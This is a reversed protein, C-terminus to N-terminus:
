PDLVANNGGKAMGPREKTTMEVKPARSTQHAQIAVVGSSRDKGNRPTAADTTLRHSFVVRGQGAMERVHRVSIRRPTAAKPVPMQAPAMATCTVMARVMKCPRVSTTLATTTVGSSRIPQAVIVMANRNINRPMMRQVAIAMASRSAKLNAHIKPAAKTTAVAITRVRRISQDAIRMVSRSAVRAIAMARVKWRRAANRSATPKRVRRVVRAVNAKRRKAASLSEVSQRLIVVRRIRYQVSLRPSPM